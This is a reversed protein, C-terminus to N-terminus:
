QKEFITKRNKMRFSEGKLNIIECRYLLRDLLATALVEDNLVKAWEKPSKNTTIILSTNGHLDNILNFLSVAEQQNVPFMMIDDIVLLHANKIRKFDIAAKRTIDKMRLTQLIDEMTRFYAKYGQEIADFCLGAALYTKGTGSPGMLVINFNQELWHLERLQALQIKELQNEYNFDYLDLNHNLPLQALKTRREKDRSLRHTIEANVLLRMLEVYSIQKEQAETLLQDIHQAMASLKLKKLNEKIAQTKLM